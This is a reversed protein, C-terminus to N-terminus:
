RAVQELLAPNIRVEARNRLAVAYQSELDEAM